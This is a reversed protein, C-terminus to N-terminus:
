KLHPDSDWYNSRDEPNKKFILLSVSLALMLESDELVVTPQSSHKEKLNLIEAKIAFPPRFHRRLCLLPAIITTTPLHSSVQASYQRHISSCSLLHLWRHHFAPNIISIALVKHSDKDHKCCNIKMTILSHLYSEEILSPNQDSLVSFHLGVDFKLQQRGPHGWLSRTFLYLILFHILDAKVPLAANFFGEAHACHSCRIQSSSSAHSSPPSLFPFRNIYDSQFLQIPESIM